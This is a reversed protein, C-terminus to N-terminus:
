ILLKELATEWKEKAAKLSVEFKGFGLEEGGV